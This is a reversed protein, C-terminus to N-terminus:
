LIIYYVTQLIEILKQSLPSTKSNFHNQIIM